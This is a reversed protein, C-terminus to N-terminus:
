PCRSVQTSPGATQTCDLSWCTCHEKIQHDQCCYGYNPCSARETEGSICTQRDYCACYGIGPNDCCIRGTGSTDGSGSTPTGCQSASALPCKSNQAKCADECSPYDKIGKLTTSGSCGSGNYTCECCDTHDSCGGSPWVLLLAMCCALRSGLLM